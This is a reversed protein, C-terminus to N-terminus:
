ETPCPGFSGLMSGLDSSDIVQDDNFDGPTGLDCQGFSGLLSGMDSSDTIADGNLDTPCPPATQLSGGM